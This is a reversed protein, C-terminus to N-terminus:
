AKQHSFDKNLSKLAEKAAAIAAERTSTQSWSIMESSDLKYIAYHWVTPKALTDCAIQAWYMGGDIRLRRYRLMEAVTQLLKEPGEAKGLFKDTYESGIPVDIVGSLLLIPVHPKAIKMERAMETGTVDPLLHDSVVLNIKNAAFIALAETANLATFVEYGARELLIKRLLLATAEDDVCLITPPPSPSPV